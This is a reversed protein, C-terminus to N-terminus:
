NKEENEEKKSSKSSKEKSMLDRLSKELLAVYQILDKLRTSMISIKMSFYILVIFIFSISLVSLTSAPQKAGILHTFFMIFKNSSVIFTAFVIVFLWIISYEINLRRKLLLYIVFLFFLFLIGILIIQAQLALEFM